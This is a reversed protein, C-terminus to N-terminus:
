KRLLNSRLALIGETSTSIVLRQNGIFAYVVTGYISKAVRMNQNSITVDSFVYATTLEEEQPTVVPSTTSTSTSTSIVPTSTAVAIAVPTTAKKITHSNGLALGLEDAFASENKIMYAFVPSYSVIMMSYGLNTKQVNTLFNGVAQDLAPSISSLKIGPQTKKQEDESAKQQELTLAKTDGQFYLYGAYGAGVLGCLILIVVIGILPTKNKQTEDDDNGIDGVASAIDAISAEKQRIENAIDHEFTDVIPSAM